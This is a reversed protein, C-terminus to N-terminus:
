RHGHRADDGDKRAMFTEIARAADPTGATRSPAATEALLQDALSAEPSRRLLARVEGYARAPRDALRRAASSAESALDKDRVVRTILGCAAAEEATLVREGTM